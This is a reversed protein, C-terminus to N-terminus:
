NIVSLIIDIYHTKKEYPLYTSQTQKIHAMFM